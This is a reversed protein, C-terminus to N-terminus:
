TAGAKDIYESAESKNIGLEIFRVRIKDGEDTLQGSSVEVDEYDLAREKAKM